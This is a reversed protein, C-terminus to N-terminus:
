TPHVACAPRIHDVMHYFVVVVFDWTCGAFVLVLEPQRWDNTNGCTYSIESLGNFLELYVLLPFICSPVYVKINKKFIASKCYKGCAGKALDM